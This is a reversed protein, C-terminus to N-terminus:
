ESRKIQFNDFDRAVWSNPFVAQAEQLIDEDRYRRSVHSLILQKVEAERALWAVEEATSHGYTAAMEAEEKLYTAEIVMADAGRVDELLKDARGVDGVVVLSTGPQMEGVVQDPQITRGDPLVVAQGAVLDKRWPGPPIGLAEAAEPLFPRRGYEDFRYGLSSSGRHDVPFATVQFKDTEFIVGPKIDHLNVPVQPTQGRLVVGNILDDVREMTHYSGYINIEDIAEWRLFTSVLGALGLIHDLHGHTLLIHNLRKFGIGAKLIQRQTGEGCDVMFRYEDHQVVLSALGRKISPASASTGLFTLDFM